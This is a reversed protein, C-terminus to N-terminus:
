VIWNYERNYSIIKLFFNTYKERHIPNVIMIVHTAKGQCPLITQITMKNGSYYVGCITDTLLYTCEGLEKVPIKLVGGELLELPAPVIWNNKNEALLEPTTPLPPFSSM